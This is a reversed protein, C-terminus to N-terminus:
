KSLTSNLENLVSIFWKNISKGKTRWIKSPITFRANYDVKIDQASSSVMHFAEIVQKLDEGISVIYMRQLIEESLREIQEDTLTTSHLTTFDTSSGETEVVCLLYRNTHYVANEAQTLTMTVTNGRTAKVEVEFRALILGTQVRRIEIGLIGYDLEEVHKSLYADFDHGKWAPIVKFGYEGFRLKEFVRRVAREILLGFIRNRRNFQNREREEYVFRSLLHVPEVGRLQSLEYLQNLNDILTQEADSKGGTILWSTIELLSFGFNQQLFMRAKEDCLISPQLEKLYDILNDKSPRNANFYRHGKGDESVTIVWENRKLQDLWLCPYIQFDRSKGEIPAYGLYRVGMLDAKITKSKRWSNDRPVLYGLVFNLIAKTLERKMKKKAYELVKDFSVVKSVTARSIYKASTYPPPHIIKIPTCSMERIQDESLETEERFFLNPQIIKAAVMRDRILTLDTVDESYGKSLKVDSPWIGTHERAEEELFLDPPVLYRKGLDELVNNERLFPLDHLPYEKGLLEVDKNQLLWKEFEMVGRKYRETDIERSKLAQKWKRHITNYLLNLAGKENMVEMGLSQFHQKLVDENSFEKHLLRESLPEFLDKSIKKLSDPVGNDIFLENPMKFNGNQNCYIAKKLFEPTQRRKSRYYEGLKYLYKLFELAKNNVKLPTEMKLNALNEFNKVRDVLNEFTQENGVNVGLSKWCERIDYWEKILVQTPVKLGLHRTLWWIAKIFKEDDFLDSGVHPNPFYVFKPEIFEIENTKPDGVVEVINLQSIGEVITSFTQNWYEQYPRERSPAGIKFLSEKKRINSDLAWRCLEKMLSTLTQLIQKLEEIQDERYNLDSRKDSVRFPADLVVPFPLDKTEALPFMRFLRPVDGLELFTQNNSHYPVAVKIKSDISSVVVLDSKIDQSGIRLLEIKIPQSQLTRREIIQYVRTQGDQVIKVKMKPETFAIVFYVTDRLCKLGKLAVNHGEDDLFYEFQTLDHKLSPGPYDLKNGCNEINEAIYAITLEDNVQFDRDLLMEFTKEIKVTDDRLWGKVKVKRSLVHTTIFGEAFQGVMNPDELRKSSKGHILAYIDDLSFPGANHEFLLRNENLVFDVEFEKKNQNRAVDRANQILEWIWKVEVLNRKDLGLWNNMKKLIERAAERASAETRKQRLLESPKLDTTLGKV